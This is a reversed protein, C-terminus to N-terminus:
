GTGEAFVKKRETRGRPIVGKLKKEIKGLMTEIEEVTFPTETGLVEKLEPFERLNTLTTRAKDVIDKKYNLIELIFEKGFYKPAVIWPQKLM